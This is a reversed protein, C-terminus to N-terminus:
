GSLLAGGNGVKENIELAQFIDAAPLFYRGKVLRGVIIVNVGGAPYEFSLIAEEGQSEDVNQAFAAGAGLIVSLLLVLVHRNLM